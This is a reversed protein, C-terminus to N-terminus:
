GKEGDKEEKQKWERMLRDIEVEIRQFLRDEAEKGACDLFGNVLGNMFILELAESQELSFSGYPGGSRHVGWGTVTWDGGNKIILETFRQLRSVDPRSKLPQDLWEDLTM